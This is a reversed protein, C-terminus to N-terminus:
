RYLLEKMYKLSYYILLISMSLNVGILVMCLGLPWNNATISFVFLSITETELLNSAMLTLISILVFICIIYLIIYLPNKANKKIYNKREIDTLEGEEKIAKRYHDWRFTGISAVLAAIALAGTINVQVFLDIFDKIKDESQALILVYLVLLFLSILAISVKEFLNLRIVKKESEEM